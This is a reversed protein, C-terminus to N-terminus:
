TFVVCLGCAVVETIETGFTLWIALELISMRMVSSMLNIVGRFM